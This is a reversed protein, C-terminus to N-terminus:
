LMPVFLLFQSPGLFFFLRVCAQAAYYVFLIQSAAYCCLLARLYVLIRLNTVSAYLFLWRLYDVGNASFLPRLIADLIPPVTSLRVCVDAVALSIVCATRFHDSNSQFKSNLATM